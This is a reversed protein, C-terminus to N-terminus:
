KTLDSVHWCELPLFTLWERQFFFGSHQQSSRCYHRGSGANRGGVSGRRRRRGGRPRPRLQAAAATVGGRGPPLDLTMKADLGDHFLGVCVFTTSKRKLCHMNWVLVLEGSLRCRTWRRGPRRCGTGKSYHPGSLSNDGALNRHRRGNHGVHAPPAAVPVFWLLTLLDFRRRTNTGCICIRIMALLNWIWHESLNTVALSNKKKIEIWCFVLKLLFNFGFM